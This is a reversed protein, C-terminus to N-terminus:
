ASSPEGWICPGPRGTEPMAEVAARRADRSRNAFARIEADPGHHHWASWTSRTPHFALFADRRPPHRQDRRGRPEAVTLGRGPRDRAVM